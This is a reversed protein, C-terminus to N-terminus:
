VRECAAQEDHDDIAEHRISWNDDAHVVGDLTPPSPLDRRAADITIGDAGTTAMEDLGAAQAPQAEHHQRRDRPRADHLGQRDQGQQRWRLAGISLTAAPVLQQGVPGTLARALEASPQGVAIDDEHTVAAKGNM